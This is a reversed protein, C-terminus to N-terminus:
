NAQDYYTMHIKSTHLHVGHLVITSRCDEIRSVKKMSPDLRHGGMVWWIRMVRRNSQRSAVHLTDMPDPPSLQQAQEEVGPSLASFRAPRAAYLEGTGKPGLYIQFPFHKSDDVM